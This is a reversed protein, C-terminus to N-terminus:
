CRGVTQELRHASSVADENQWLWRFTRRFPLFVQIAQGDESDLPILFRCNTFSQSSKGEAESHYSEMLWTPM